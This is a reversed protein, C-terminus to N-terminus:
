GWGKAWPVPLKVAGATPPRESCGNRAASALSACSRAGAPSAPLRATSRQGDRGQNPPTARTAAPNLTSLWTSSGPVDERPVLFTSSRHVHPRKCARLGRGNSIRPALTRVAAGGRGQGNSLGRRSRHRAHVEARHARLRRSRRGGRVHPPRRSHGDRGRVAAARPFAGDPGRGRLRGPTPSKTTGVSCGRWCDPM